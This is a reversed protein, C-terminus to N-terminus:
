DLLEYYIKELDKSDWLVPVPYLPNAEKEATKALAPIYEKKLEKVKTPISLKQNLSRIWEKFDAAGVEHTEEKYVIHAALALKYLKKDIKHGYADLVYPLIIANAEGHPVDYKGGLSHAIAHVYGVYSKTFALGALYSANLMSVRAIESDPKNYATLINGRILEV